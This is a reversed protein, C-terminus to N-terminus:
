AVAGHPLPGAQKNAAKRATTPSLLPPPSHITYIRDNMADGRRVLGPMAREGGCQKETTRPGHTVNRAGGERREQRELGRREGGM